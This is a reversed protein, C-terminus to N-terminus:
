WSLVFQLQLVAAPGPDPNFAPNWIIEVDTQLKTLPTLQLAYFTELLYENEHYVTQSVSSPQSWVFGLGALDDSWESFLGASQLPAHMVFGTGIQAKAGGNVESGGIGFRGFWGFPSEGGLQQQVNLGIGCQVSGDAQGIFPQIRYVGAGFGLV